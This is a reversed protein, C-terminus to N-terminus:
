ENNNKIKENTSEATINTSLLASKKENKAKQVKKKKKYLFYSLWTLYGIFMSGFYSCISITNNITWPENIIVPILTFLLILIIIIITLIYIIIEWWPIKIKKQFHLQVLAIFTGLYNVIYVITGAQIMNEFANKLNFLIPIIVFLIMSVITLFLSLYLANSYEGFRNKKKLFPPLYGDEAMPAIIRSYWITYSLQNSFRNFIAGIIFIILGTSGFAKFFIGEYGQINEEKNIGLFLICTLFYFIFILSYIIFMIKKFKTIGKTDKSLAAINNFGNFAFIFLMTKATLTSLKIKENPYLNDFFSNDKMCFYIILITGSIIILYKITAFIFLFIKSIKLSLIAILTILIFLIGSGIQYYIQNEPTNDLIQLLEALFLPATASLLFIHSIQNWGQFFTAYKGFALKTYGYTGGSIQPYKETARAFALMTVFSIFAALLFCLLSWIGLNITKTLVAIFGFGVIWNFGFCIFQITNLSNESKFKM